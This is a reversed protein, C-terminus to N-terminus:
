NAVGELKGANEMVLNAVGRTQWSKQSRRNRKNAGARAEGLNAMGASSQNVCNIAWLNHPESVSNINSVILNKLHLTM